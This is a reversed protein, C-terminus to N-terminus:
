ALQALVGQRHEMIALSLSDIAALFENKDLSESQMCEVAVLANGELAYAGQLMESGNLELLHRFLKAAKADPLNEPLDMLKCRFIVLPETNQVIIQAGVWNADRLIWTGPGVHEHAIGANLLYTELKDATPNSADSHSDNAM